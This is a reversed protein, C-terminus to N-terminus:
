ICRSVASEDFKTKMSVKSSELNAKALDCVKSLRTLFDSVYQFLNFCDNGDLIFM